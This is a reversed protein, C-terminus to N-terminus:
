GYKELVTACFTRRHIDCLGHQLISQVHKRTAYGKNDIFGYGPYREDMMEMYRDRIVKAVVSAAAISNSLADGHKIAQQPIGIGPIYFADVLLIEPIVGLAFICRRMAEFTAASINHADIYGPPILSVALALSKERIEYFVSERAHPTMKKSDDLGYIMAHPKLVVAAASVPGAISGRGAEDIGAVFELGDKRLAREFAYRGKLRRMEEKFREFDTTIQKGLAQAGSRPDNVLDLAMEKLLQGKERSAMDRLEELSFVSADGEKWEEEWEESHM